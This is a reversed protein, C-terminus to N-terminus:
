LKGPVCGFSAGMTTPSFPRTNSETVSSNSRSSTLAKTYSRSTNIFRSFTSSPFESRRPSIRRLSSSTQAATYANGASHSSPSHRGASAAARLIMAGSSAALFEGVVGVIASTACECMSVAHSHGIASVRRFVPRVKEEMTFRMSRYGSTMKMCLAGHWASIAISSKGSTKARM